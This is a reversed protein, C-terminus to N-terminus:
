PEEKDATDDGLFGVAGGADVDIRTGGDALVEEDVM